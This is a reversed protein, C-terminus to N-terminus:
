FAANEIREIEAKAIAYDSKINRVNEIQEKTPELKVLDNELGEVFLAKHLLLLLNFVQFQKEVFGSVSSRSILEQKNRALVVIKDILEKEGNVRANEYSTDENILTISYATYVMYIDFKEKLMANVKKVTELFLKPPDVPSERLITTFSSYKMENQEVILRISEQIFEYEKFDIEISQEDKKKFYGLKTEILNEEELKKLCLDFTKLVTNNIKNISKRLTKRSESETFYEEYIVAAEKRNFYLIQFLDLVELWISTSFKNNKLIENEEVLRQYIYMKLKENQKKAIQNGQHKTEKKSVKSKQNKLKLKKSKGRPLKGKENLMYEAEEYVTQLNKLLSDYSDTNTFRGNKKFTNLLSEGNPTDMEVCRYIAEEVTLIIESM